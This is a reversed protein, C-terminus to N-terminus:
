GPTHRPASNYAVHAAGHQQLLHYAIGAAAQDNPEILIVIGGRALQEDFREDVREGFWRAAMGGAAGAGAGGALAAIAVGALTGGSAATVGAALVAGAYAPLGALLGQVNGTEARDVPADAIPQATEPTAAVERASRDAAVLHISARDIGSGQLADLAKELRDRDQFVALVTPVNGGPSGDPKPATTGDDPQHM